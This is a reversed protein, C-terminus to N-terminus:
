SAASRHHAVRQPADGRREMPRLVYIRCASGLWRALAARASLSLREAFVMSGTYFLGAPYTKVVEFGHAAFTATWWRRSYYYPETLTMGREGHREPFLTSAIPRAPRQSRASGGSREVGALLAACRKALWGYHSFTTWWRWAPTPLAHVSIGGPALVRGIEGLLNDLDRVHELVNSSFVVDVTASPIPLTRGDYDIVSYVREDAYASGPVDLALVDYGRRQLQAAQRGTGAGLDVVRGARPLEELVRELEFDRVAHLYHNRRDTV